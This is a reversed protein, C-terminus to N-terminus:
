NEEELFDTPSGWCEYDDNEFELSINELEINDPFDINFLTEWKDGNYKFLKIKTTM